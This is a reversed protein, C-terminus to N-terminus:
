SKGGETTDPYIHIKGLEVVEFDAMTLGQLEYGVLGSTGVDPSAYLTPVAARDVVIAGYRRLTAVLADAVRQEQPSLPVVEGTVRDVPPRLVADARLRIRAGEPLSAWRGNGDTSSAPQVFRRQAPGPVSIALAHEVRGAALEGPMILGGIFPLGSGRASVTQPVDYGPGDLDWARAYLYSLAGDSERRARWLDYATGDSLVTFWGDYEPMPDVDTPVTLTDDPIPDGCDVQRCRLETPVGGSVVPTTWSSTNIYLGEDVMRREVVPAAGGRREVVGVREQSLRIMRASHRDVKAGDIATNWPSDAAFPREALVRAAESSISSMGSPSQQEASGGETADPGSACASVLLPVAAAAM